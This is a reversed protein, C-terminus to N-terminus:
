KGHSVFVVEGTEASIKVIAVGRLSDEPMSGSVTWIGDKLEAHYPEQKKINKEGYIPRWIAVAVAIATQSDPVHRTNVPTTATHPSCASTIISASLMTYTLIHRLNM